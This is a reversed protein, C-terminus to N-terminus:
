KELSFVKDKLNQYYQSTWAELYGKCRPNIYNGKLVKLVSGDNKEIDIVEYKENVFTGVLSMSDVINAFNNQFSDLWAKTKPKKYSEELVCNKKGDCYNKLDLLTHDIRDELYRARSQNIGGDECPFYIIPTARYEKFVKIFQEGFGEKSKIRRVSFLADSTLKIKNEVKVGKGSYGDPDIYSAIFLKWAKEDTGYKDVIFDYLNIDYEFIDSYSLNNEVKIEM